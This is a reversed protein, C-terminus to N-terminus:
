ATFYNLCLKSPNSITRQMAYIYPQKLNYITPLSAAAGALKPRESRAVRVNIDYWPQM